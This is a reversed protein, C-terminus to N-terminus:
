PELYIKEFEKLYLDAIEESHIILINEDNRTDGSATPNMSGTIVTENDIILVKHHMKGTINDWRVDAGQFELFDFRSYQSNGSKEFVGKVEISENIKVAIANAIQNHTFSFTMFYISEEAKNIEDIIHLACEDEPCFYNDIREGSLYITPMLVKNGKGFNEEWLELFEDKYNNALYVSEIIVLNNSNKYNGNYTPNFSGASVRKNDVVCFKNHMYQSTTDNVAFSLDNVNDFNNDDVILRVDIEDSKSELADIIEDLDIDYFACYVYEEASDIFGALVSSCNDAPCFYVDISGEDRTYSIIQNGKEVISEGTIGCGTLFVVLVLFPIIQKM